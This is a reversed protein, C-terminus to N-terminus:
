EIVFPDLAPREEQKEDDEKGKFEEMLEEKNM